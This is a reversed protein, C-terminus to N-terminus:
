EVHGSMSSMTCIEASTGKFFKGMALYDLGDSCNFVVEVLRAGPNMDGM